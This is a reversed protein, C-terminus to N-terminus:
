REKERKYTTIAHTRDLQAEKVYKQSRWTQDVVNVNIFQYSTFVILETLVRVVNTRYVSLDLAISVAEAYAKGIGDTAGTVVSIFCFRWHPFRSKYNGCSHQQAHSATNSPPTTGSTEVAKRGFVKANMQVVNLLGVCLVKSRQVVGGGVVWGFALLQVVDDTSFQWDICTIQKM